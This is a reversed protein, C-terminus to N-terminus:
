YMKGQFYRYEGMPSKTLIVHVYRNSSKEPFYVEFKVDYNGMPNKSVGMCSKMQWGSSYRAYVTDAIANGLNAQALAILANEDVDSEVSSNNSATSNNSTNSSDTDTEDMTEWDDESGYGPLRTTARLEERSKRLYCYDGYEYGKQEQADIAMQTEYGPVNMEHLLEVYIEEPNDMYYYYVTCYSGDRTATYIGYRKGDREYKDIKMSEGTFFEVWKGYFENELLTETEKATLYETDGLLMFGQEVGKEYREYKMGLYIEAVLNKIKKKNGLTKCIELAKQYEKQGVLKKAIKFLYTDTEEFHGTQLFYDMADAYKKQEFLAMGQAYNCEMEMEASVESDGMDAILTRAEDFKGSNIQELVQGYKCQVILMDKDPIEMEGSKELLSLAQDYDGNEMMQDILRIYSEVAQESADEYEGLSKFQDYAKQYEGDEMLEVATQYLEKQTPKHSCACCVVLVSLLLIWLYKKM